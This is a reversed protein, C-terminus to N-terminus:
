IISSLFYVIFMGKQKFFLAYLMTVFFWITIEGHHTCFQSSILQLFIVFQLGFAKKYDMAIVLHHRVLSYNQWFLQHTYGATITIVGHLFILNVLLMKNTSYWRCVASPLDFEDQLQGLRTYAAITPM